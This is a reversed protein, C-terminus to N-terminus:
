RTLPRRPKVIPNVVSRPWKGHRLDIITEGALRFTEHRTLESASAVHPTLVVNDLQALPSDPALPYHELVDLAAGAIWGESLAKYLASEDVVSGRAMNVLYTQPRMQRLEEEGILHFTEATLPTHLLVFDAHRLLQELEVKEVGMEQMTAQSVHPDFALVKMAESSRGLKASQFKVSCM